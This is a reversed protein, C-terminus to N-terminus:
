QPQGTPTSHTASIDNPKYIDLEIVRSFDDDMSALKTLRLENMTAVLLSDNTLLGHRERIASSNKLLTDTLPAIGIKMSIIRAVCQQPFRLQRVIEPHARLKQLAKTGSILKHEIAEAIMLRHMAESVLFSATAAKIKHAHIREFFKKCDNSLGLFHYVLINADIFISEGDQLDDFTM